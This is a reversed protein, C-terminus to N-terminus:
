YDQEHNVGAALTTARRFALPRDLSYHLRLRRCTARVGLCAPTSRPPGSSSITGDRAELSHTISGALVKGRM